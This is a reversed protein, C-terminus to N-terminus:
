FNIHPYSNKPLLVLSLKTRSRSCISFRQFDNIALLINYLEFLYRISFKKCLYQLLVVKLASSIHFSVFFKSIICISLIREIQMLYSFNLAVVVITIVQVATVLEHDFFIKLKKSQGKYKHVQNPIKKTPSFSNLVGSLDSLVGQIYKYQLMGSIVM